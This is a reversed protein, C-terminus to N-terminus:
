PLGYVPGDPNFAAWAFWFENGHVVPDLQTGTLPGTLATGNLDWESGTESDTFTDDGNATFALVQGDVTRLFAIGTGIAAAAQVEGADLADATDGGWLVVIETGGVSDNVVGASEIQSFPYAKATEGVSVNVVRELAPFRDDLDQQFFSEYPATRSSYGVYPNFGYQRGFGQDPGL